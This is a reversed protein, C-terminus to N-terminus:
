ANLMKGYERVRALMIKNATILRGYEGLLRQQARTPCQVPLLVYMERFRYLTFSLGNERNMWDLLDDIHTFVCMTHPCGGKVRYVRRRAPRVSILLLCGEASPLAEVLFSRGRPSFACRQGVHYLLRKLGSQVSSLESQSGFDLRYDELDDAAMAVLITGQSLRDIRM